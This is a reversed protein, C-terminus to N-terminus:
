INSRLWKEVQEVSMNKRKAYDEIQDDQVKGVSFYKADAHAFYYGSVSANPSMAMSETLSVNISKEANLLEFIKLKETHDPCATYGPAPRIGKYEEKILDKNEFQEDAAYGWIEKRIKEHMYETLAEALRDAIAKLMISNYDDHDKEYVALQKEIGLGATCVFSGMYDKRGSTLPAVLDALCRNSKSKKGQQRLFNYTSIQKGNEFLHVDDGDSNAQWVGIVAKAQLWNNKIINDLMANADNMLQNAQEAFLEDELIDPYKKRMEWTFFFPTWDIYNRITAIDINEFVQVGLQNAAPITANEWDTVIANERAKGISLYEKDSKRNLYNDKITKYEENVSIRFNEKEKGLLKSMVGVAKSADLVHVVTNNNYHENVKVATHVKSTTAGGIMLPVLFNNRQMEKAVDIMEDLSPTILGSLGIVDVENKIAEELIKNAPVMVGLDIIEYNNCGLVVGVINKGIDHVDGKVTALLIKGAKSSAIKEKEIFPTLVAVAKKMVRASKVVQPLFMKGAGFLEGVVSMGDMLPGEIVDLPRVSKLRAEETDQEIFAVIGKVLAHSLRGEVSQERWSLDEVRKKGEGKINDALDVLRETAGDDKNLLVDEVAKLLYKPIDEYAEIMGANVIGMDMGNNIAHFLFASHMAERVINNGRFSFSVNSVGGSVKAYPLNEKIWKTARFFDVAYNNHEDIGTAVTLINPDFIIDEAPFGIEDVLIHYARKCIRIKEKYDAAQGKEDFAMVVVAAGYKLITKAHQKFVEEGEKLSISNVIGKGQTCKLGAEIIHWKSSDVMIPVRSIDPDSAILNLFHTMCEQGELMGDDMNVDIAQAGGEVQHLAVELAKELNDDKILRKFKKSGMVNTREGINVFNSEQSITVAELGSLRMAKKLEPIERAKYKKAIRVFEAIHEPTTGCCGGVINVLANQMFDELQAGMAEPSEDYEGMENPLGANPYASVFFPAKKALERVYPRMAKTGLACNFGVSLLPIHSISNLFAEATQGSLTRGSEDTITGSVMIPIRIGKSEFVDEIAFLAAKCNLTDFVTEVLLLDVGGNILANVQEIYAEKLQDFTIHRFAPNDVDPSISATRNTPGIAGAVFRPKDSTSFAIAVDKAIKASQFNLEYVSSELSYDAQAISTGSFTNTEIIDAGADLYERHIAKVIDPRTISLLDNNGKLDCTHNKFQEGRFDEETLTYRQIMTGMAGDLVLIRNMLLQEIKYIM